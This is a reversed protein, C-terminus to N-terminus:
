TDLPRPSTRVSSTPAKISSREGSVKALAYAFCHGFNLKAPHDCGRGYSRCAARAEEAQVVSVPEIM